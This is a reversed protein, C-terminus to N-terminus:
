AVQLHESPSQNKMLDLIDACFVANDTDGKTVLLYALRRCAAEDKNQLIQALNQFGDFVGCTTFCDLRQRLFLIDESHPHYQLTHEITKRAFDFKRKLMMVRIRKSRLKPDRARIFSEPEESLCTLIM